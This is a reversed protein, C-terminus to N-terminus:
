LKQGNKDTRYGIKQFRVFNCPCFRVFVVHDGGGGGLSQLLPNLLYVSYMMSDHVHLPVPSHLYNQNRYNDQYCSTSLNGM